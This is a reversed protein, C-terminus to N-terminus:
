PDFSLTVSAGIGVGGTAALGATGHRLEVAAGVGIACPPVVLETPGAITTTPPLIPPDPIPTPAAPASPVGVGTIGAFSGAAPTATTTPGITSGASVLRVTISGFGPSLREPSPPERYRWQLGAGAITATAANACWVASPLDFPDLQQASYHDWISNIDAMPRNTFPLDLPAGVQVTGLRFPYPVGSPGTYTETPVQGPSYIKGEDPNIAPFTAM